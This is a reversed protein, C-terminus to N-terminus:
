SSLATRARHAFATAGLRDLRGAARELHERREPNSVALHRGWELHALAVELPMDISEALDLAKKWGKTAAPKRGRLWSWTGELLLASPRAFVFFMAIFKVNKLARRASAELGERDADTLGDPDEWLSLYVRLVETLAQFMYYPYPQSTSMLALSRDASQLAQRRDGAALSAMAHIAHAWLVELDVTSEEARVMEPALTALAEEPRGQWTQNYAVSFRGWSVTQSADRGEAALTVERWRQEAEAFRGQYQIAKGQVSVCEEWLRREGLEEALTVGRALHEEATVWDGACLARVAVRSLTYASTANEGIQDAADLARRGWRDGVRRLLFADMVCAMMAFGRAFEPGPELREALNITRFGAVLGRIADNQYFYIELLREHLHAVQVLPEAEEERKVRFPTLWIGQLMRVLAGGWFALVAGVQNRPFPHGFHRLARHAASLAEELRGEAFWADQVGREWGGQRHAGHGLDHDENLSLAQTFCDIAEQNSSERVAKQGALDLMEVAQDWVEAKLWHHALRAYHPELDQDQETEIWTAARRHLDRRQAFLMLSYVAEQTLAHKFAYQTERSGDVYPLLLAAECFEVMVDDLLDRDAEVPFLDRVMRLPFTRGLVSAVKLGLQQAPSLRDVRSTVVGQVTDPLELTALSERGGPIDCVGGEIRIVGSEKLTYALEESYYPNGEAKSRILEGLASPLRQVGLRSCVLELIDKGELPGLVQHHVESRALIQEYEADPSEMPRTSLVAVLPEVEEIVRAALAWSSSDIWHCDELILVLPAALAQERLLSVLFQQTNDARVVGSMQATLENDEVEVGLVPELLPALRAQEETLQRAVAERVEDATAAGTLQFVGAFIGRWAHYPTAREIADGTGLHTIATISRSLNLAEAVLRSKGIGAEGELVVVSSTKNRVLAQIRETLLEKELRRGVLTSSSRVRVVFQGTPEYVPVPEQKGKLQLPELAVFHATDRALRWTHGEVLVRGEAQQMLRAALNVADGMVTYEARTNDGIAGCFVMGTSIGLASRIGSTALEQQALVGAKVARDADDEHALPPLGMAAVVSVGKDDVSIKNISGEFRYLARQLVELARQAGSLDASTATVLDPLNIFLVSVLRLEGLWSAQGSTYRSLVSGPLFSRLLDQGTDSLDIEQVAGARTPRCAELLVHGGNLTQGRADTGMLAWAEPSLVVQGGRAEGQAARLQTMPEGTVFFEWRGLVGGVHLGHLDGAALAVRMSLRVEGGVHYEHLREQILLAVAAAEWTAAQLGEHAPWLALLADGAFKFVEGGHAQVLQILEGFYENLYVTLQEAGEVGRAALRETLSTFGKIDAFLVAAQLPEGVPETIPTPDAAIRRKILDPVFRALSM